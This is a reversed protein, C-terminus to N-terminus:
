VHSVVSNVMRTFIKTWQVAYCQSMLQMATDLTLSIPGKAKFAPHRCLYANCNTLIKNDSPDRPWVKVCYISRSFCNRGESLFM